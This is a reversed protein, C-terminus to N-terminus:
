CLTSFRESLSFLVIIKLGFFHEIWFHSFKSGPVVRICILASSPLSNFSFLFFVYEPNFLFWFDERFGLLIQGSILFRKYFKYKHQCKSHATHAWTWIREYTRRDTKSKMNGKTNKMTKVYRWFRENNKQALSNRTTRKARMSKAKIYKMNRDIQYYWNNLHEFLYNLVNAGSM